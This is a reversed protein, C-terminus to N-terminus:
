EWGKRKRKWLFSRPFSFFSYFFLLVAPDVPQDEIEPTREVDIQNEKEKRKQNFLFSSFHFGLIEDPRSKSISFLDLRLSWAPSVGSAPHFIRKSDGALDRWRNCVIEEEM